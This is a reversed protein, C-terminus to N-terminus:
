GAFSVISVGPHESFLHSTELIKSDCGICDRQKSSGLHELGEIFTIIGDAYDIHICIYGLPL